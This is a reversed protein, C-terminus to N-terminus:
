ERSLIPELFSGESWNGVFHLLLYGQVVEVTGENSCRIGVNISVSSSYLEYVITDM